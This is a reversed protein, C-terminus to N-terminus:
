SVLVKLTYIMQGETMEMSVVEFSLGLEFLV